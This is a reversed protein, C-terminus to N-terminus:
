RSLMWAVGLAAAAPVPALWRAPSAAETGNWPKAPSAYSGSGRGCAPSSVAESPSCPPREELLSLDVTPQAGTAGPTVSVSAPAAGAAGDCASASCVGCTGMLLAAPSGACQEGIDVPKGAPGASANVCCAGGASAVCASGAVGGRCRKVARRTLLVGGPPLGTGDQPRLARVGGLGTCFGQSEHWSRHARRCRGTEYTGLFYRRRKRHM